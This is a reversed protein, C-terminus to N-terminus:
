AHREHGERGPGIRAGDRLGDFADDLAAFKRRIRKIHSTITSDDVTLSAERMLADRDKVHGPYKALLFTSQKLLVPYLSTLLANM